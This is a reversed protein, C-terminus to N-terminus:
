LALLLDTSEVLERHTETLDLKLKAIKKGINVRKRALRLRDEDTGYCFTPLTRLQCELQVSETRKIQYVREVYSVHHILRLKDAKLWNKEQDDAPPSVGFAWEMARTLDFHAVM